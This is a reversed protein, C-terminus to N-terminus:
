KVEELAPTIRRLWDQWALEKAAAITASGLHGILEGNAYVDLRYGSRCAHILYHYRGVLPSSFLKGVDNNMEPSWAPDSGRWELPRITYTKM